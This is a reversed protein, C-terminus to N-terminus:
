LSSVYIANEEKREFSRTRVNYKMYKPQHNLNGRLMLKMNEIWSSLRNYNPWGPLKYSLLRDTNFELRNDRARKKKVIDNINAASAFEKLFKRYEEKEKPVDKIFCIFSNLRMKDNLLDAFIHHANCLSILNDKRNNTGDRRPFIHHLTTTVVIQECCECWDDDPLDKRYKYVYTNSSM